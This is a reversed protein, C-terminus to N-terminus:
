RTSRGARPETRDRARDQAERVAASPAQGPNWRDIASWALGTRDFYDDISMWRKPPTEPVPTELPRTM